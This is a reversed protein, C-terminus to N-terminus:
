HQVQEAIIRYICVAQTKNRFFFVDTVKCGINMRMDDLRHLSTNRRARQANKTANKSWAWQRKVTFLLAYVQEGFYVKFIQSLYTTM